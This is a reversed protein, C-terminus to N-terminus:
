YKEFFEKLEARYNDQELIEKVKLEAHLDDDFNERIARHAWKQLMDPKVADLEVQGLGTFGATRSDTKKAPAAPLKLRRCQDKNLAKVEVDIDLAFDSFFNQEISRPIDEGSPDHDGFYVIKLDKGREEAELFRLSAEYLFTLSPYGKCPCLGVELDECVPKFVGQLAKKEIWLELYTPQNEWRNRSYHNMWATVQQIGHQVADDFNVEKCNTEGLMERDHDSFQSYSVQRNRRAHIMANVVRKYHILSNTMGLGVLQYHLARLTLVGDEYEDCIDEANNIIWDRNFRDMATKAWLTFNFKPNNVAKGEEITGVVSEFNNIDDHKIVTRGRLAIRKTQKRKRNATNVDDIWESMTRKSTIRKGQSDVLVYAVIIELLDLTELGAFYWLWDRKDFRADHGAFIL